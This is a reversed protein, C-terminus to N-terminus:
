LLLCLCFLFMCHNHVLFIELSWLSLSLCFLLHPLASDLMCRLSFGKACLMYGMAACICFLCSSSVCRTMAPEAETAPGLQMEKCHALKQHLSCVLSQAHSTIPSLSVAFLQIFVNLFASFLIQKKIKSNILSM